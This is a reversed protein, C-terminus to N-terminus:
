PEVAVRGFPYFVGGYPRNVLHSLPIPVPLLAGASFTWVRPEDPLWGGDEIYELRGVGVVASKIQSVADSQRRVLEAESAEVDLGFLLDDGDQDFDGPPATGATSYLYYLKHDGAAPNMHLYKERRWGRAVWGAFPRYLPLAPIGPMGERLAATLRIPATSSHNWRRPSNYKEPNRIRRMTTM